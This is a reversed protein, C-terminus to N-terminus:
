RSRKSVSLPLLKGRATLIPHMRKIRLNGSEAWTSSAAGGAFNERKMAALMPRVIQSEDAIPVTPSIALTVHSFGREDEEEILQYDLPTGGFQRPLIEEIIRLLDAGLMTVGESTLKRFSRIEHVHTTYGLQELPCGCS